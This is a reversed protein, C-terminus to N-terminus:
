LTVFIASIDFTGTENFLILIGILLGVDGIRTTVFAKKAAEAASRGRTGSARDAPLLVVGVLEWAIYILLLNDALSRAGAHVRRVPLARRLVLRNRSSAAEHLELSYVQVM